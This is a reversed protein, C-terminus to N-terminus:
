IEMVEIDYHGRGLIYNAASSYKYNEPKEALQWKEQCPNNHIYNLKEMFFKYTQILLCDYGNEFVKHKANFKTRANEKFFDLTEFRKDNKLLEIIDYALFRKANQILTPLAPSKATIKLLLHLHNPMIVYGHVRNNYKDKM